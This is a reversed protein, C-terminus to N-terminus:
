NLRQEGRPHCRGHEGAAQAFLLRGDVAPASRPGECRITLGSRVWRRPKERHRGVKYISWVARFFGVLLLVALVAVPIDNRNVRPIPANVVNLLATQVLLHILGGLGLM